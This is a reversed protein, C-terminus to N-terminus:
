NEEGNTRLEPADMDPAPQIIEMPAAAPRPTPPLPPAFRALGEIREAGALSQARVGHFAAGIQEARGGLCDRLFQDAVAFVSQRASPDSLLAGAEPFVLYVLGTRLRVGQSMLDSETRLNWADRAGQMILLPQEVNQARSLPSQARLLDRGEQLRMDGVRSYFNPRRWEHKQPTNTLMAELNAPGAIDVGCAFRQPAFSLGHLVSFGGFGHGLMAIRDPGAIREDVAWQAADQLDEQIKGGWERNGANLFAKGFGTSGRFNVSLVAYGRNALWQHIANFGYSDRAWPGDHPLIVLPTERDPRSDGNADSGIPLTLYSVLTLADRAEIEVPSMPQLPAGELAPRNRYLLTLTPHEADSRNYLWTRPAIQPAEELVIWLKDDASRSVIQPDGQLREDLFNLDAQAKADLARWDRRLYEAAFAEPAGSVPDRWVDVVDARASEGLVEKAGSAANVRVLAARDRGTSDLMLFSAGEAEFGIVDSSMADEFPITTLLGWRGGSESKSWIEVSGDAAMKLG